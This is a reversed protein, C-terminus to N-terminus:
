IKVVIRAGTHGIKRSVNGHAFLATLAPDTVLGCDAGVLTSAPTWWTLSDANYM